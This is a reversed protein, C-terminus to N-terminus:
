LILVRGSFGPLKQQVKSPNSNLAEHKSPLREVVQAVGGARCYKLFSVIFNHVSTSFSFVQFTDLHYFIFFQCARPLLLFVGCAVWFDTDLIDGTILRRERM